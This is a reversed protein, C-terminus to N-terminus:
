VQSVSCIAIIESKITSDLTQTNWSEFLGTKAMDEKDERFRGRCDSESDRRKVLM